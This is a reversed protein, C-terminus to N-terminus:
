VMGPLENFLIVCSSNMRFTLINFVAMFFYKIDTRVPHKEREKLYQREAKIVGEFGRMRLAVHPSLLGPRNKIRDEQLDPPFSSHVFRSMPRVGVLRIDGRILNFFQPTEDIWIKRIFKGVRTLRFDDKPKGMTNYGNIKVVYDQIFESYPYMSRIKYVEISKGGKGVRKLRVIFRSTSVPETRPEAKKRLIFYTRTECFHYNIIEFGCYALRGLIEALSNDNHLSLPSYRGESKHHKTVPLFNRSIYDLMIMFYAFAKNYKKFYRRQRNYRSEFCGVYIGSVNLKENIARFHDNLDTAHSANRFDIFLKGQGSNEDEQYAWDTAIDPVPRLEGISLNAFLFGAVENGAHSCIRSYLEDIEKSEFNAKRIVTDM